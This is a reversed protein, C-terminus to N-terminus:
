ENENPSIVLRGLNPDKLRKNLDIYNWIWTGLSTASLTFFLNLDHKQNNKYALLDAHYQTGGDLDAM